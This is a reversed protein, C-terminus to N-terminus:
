DAAPDILHDLKMVGSLLAGALTQHRACPWELGATARVRAGVPGAAQVAQVRVLWVGKRATTTVAIRVGVGYAAGMEGSWDWAARMMEEDSRGVERRKM